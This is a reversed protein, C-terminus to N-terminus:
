EGYYHYCLLLLVFYVFEINFKVLNCLSYLHCTVISILYLITFYHMLNQSAMFEEIFKDKRKLTYMYQLDKNVM